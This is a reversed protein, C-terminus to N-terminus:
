PFSLHQKPEWGATPLLQTSSASGRTSTPGAHPAPFQVGTRPSLLAAARVASGGGRAEPEGAGLGRPGCVGRRPCRPQHQGSAATGLPRPQPVPVAGTLSRPPRPVSLGWTRATRHGRPRHAGWVWSCAFATFVALAHTLAPGPWRPATPAAPVSSPRVPHCSPAEHGTARAGRRAPVPKWDPSGVAGQRTRRAPVGLISPSSHPCQSPGPRVAGLLIRCNMRRHSLQVPCGPLVHSLLQPRRRCSAARDVHALTVALVM